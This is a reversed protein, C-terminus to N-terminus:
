HGACWPLKNLHPKRQAQAGPFKEGTRCRGLRSLPALVSSGRGFREPMGTESEAISNCTNKESRAVKEGQKAVSKPACLPGSQQEKQQELVWEALQGPRM